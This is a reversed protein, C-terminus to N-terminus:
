KGCEGMMWYELWLNDSPKMNTANGEIKTPRFERLGEPPWRIKGTSTIPKEGREDSRVGRGFFRGVWVVEALFM